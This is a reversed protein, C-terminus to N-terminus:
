FFTGGFTGFNTPITNILPPPTYPVYGLAGAMNANNTAFPVPAATVPPTHSQIGNGLNGLNVNYLNPNNLVPDRGAAVQQNIQNQQTNLYALEGVPDSGFSVPGMGSGGGFDEGGPDGKANADFGGANMTSFGYPDGIGGGASPAQTAGGAPYLSGFSQPTAGLGGGVNAGSFGYPTIPTAGSTGGSTIGGIGFAGNQVGGSVDLGAGFSPAGGAPTAPPGGSSTIGGLGFGGNGTPGLGQAANFASFQYPNSGTPLARGEAAGYNLYHALPDVHAAAVDQNQALYATPDFARNIRDGAGDIARGENFGYTQYHTLADMGSAAVDPNAGLYAGPDFRGGFSASGTAGAGQGVSAGSFSYPNSGTPLSRGESAGNELYHRLPDVHAAAVDPNAQLYASPDFGQTIRDGQADLARGENYGYTLYHTLADMGSAAVDANAARYANPDFHGSWAATAAGPVQTGVESGTNLTGSIGGGGQMPTPAPAQILAAMDPSLTSRYASSEPSGYVQAEIGSFGQAGVNQYNQLAWADPARGLDRAYLTDLPSYTAAETPHQQLYGQAEPAARIAAEIQPLSQGAALQRTWGDVGAAEGLRGTDRAYIDQIPSWATVAPPAGRTQAEPSALIQAEIANLGTGATIQADFGQQGVPDALRGLDRAYVTDATSYTRSASPAGLTQAEPSAQLAAQIANLDMTGARLQADYYDLGPADAGRHLTAQYIQDIPSVPTATNLTGSIGGGPQTGVAPGAGFRALAAVIQDRPTGAQVQADFYSRGPADAFRDLVRAYDSDTAGYTPVDVATNQLRAQGEPSALLGQQIGNLDLTGAQLAAAYSRSGSADADRGLANRYLTNIVPDIGDGFAGNGAGLGSAVNTGQGFGDVPRNPVFGGSAGGQTVGGDGVYGGGQSVDTGSFGTGGGTEIVGGATGFNGNPAEFGSYDIITGFGDTGPAPAQQSTSLNPNQRQYEAADKVLKPGSYIHDGVTINGYPGWLARQQWPNPADPTQYFTAGQTVGRGEGYTLFRDVVQSAQQYQRLADGSLGQGGNLSSNSLAYQGNPRGNLEPRWADYQYGGGGTRATVIDQISAGRRAGYQTPDAQRNLITDLVGQQSQVTGRNNEGMVTAILYDRDTPM